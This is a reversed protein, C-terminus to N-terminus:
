PRHGIVDYEVPEAPWALGELTLHAEAGSSMFRMSLLTFRREFEPIDTRRPGFLISSARLACQPSQQGPQRASDFDALWNQQATLVLVCPEIAVLAHGADDLSITVSHVESSAAAAHDEAPRPFSFVWSGEISGCGFMGVAMVLVTARM